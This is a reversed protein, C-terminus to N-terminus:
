PVVAVGPRRGAVRGRTPTCVLAAAGLTAVAEAIASLTKKPFWSPDYMDPIPGLAGVDVYRYLLVAALATVAVLLAFVHPLRRGSVLVLLAAVIAVGAEVRFLVGQSIGGSNTDYQGALVIHVYADVGLGVVTVLRLVIHGPSRGGNDAM